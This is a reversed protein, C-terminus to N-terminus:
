CSVSKESIQIGRKELGDWFKRFVRDEMGLSEPPVVGKEKIAGNLILQAVISTPYATTRAMATIGRKEDCKDLMHYTYGTKEDKKIGCVEVRLAVFDKVEPKQLTQELLKVMLKRPSVKVGEVKIKEDKFLGMAELLRIEEAHGPYRLTKEWMDLVGDMTQLLTRLGDTFFAELKGVEPFLINEVGSLAEVQVRRGQKVIIAKRTYEDILSEPSWTVTYGLPPIPKEPLGGVMIHVARTKDLKQFAHGVILNSIGPALGCDPVITIGASEAAQHLRLPNEAMYSVDVLNKRAEICAEMLRYGLRGPLFGLALDCDKLTSLLKGRDAADLHTWSVNSKDIRDAVNNAKRADQDAIVIESSSMSNAVDEAATSGINGSGLVLVRM